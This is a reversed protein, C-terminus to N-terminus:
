GTVRENETPKLYFVGIGETLEGFDKAVLNRRKDFDSFYSFVGTRDKDKLLHLPYSCRQNPHYAIHRLKTNEYFFNVEVARGIVLDIGYFEHFLLRLGCCLYLGRNKNRRCTKM